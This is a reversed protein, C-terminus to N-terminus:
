GIQISAERDETISQVEPNTELFEMIKKGTQNDQTKFSFGKFLEDYRGIIQAGMDEIESILGQYGRDTTNNQLMVIFQNAIVQESGNAMVTASDNLTKCVVFGGSVQNDTTWVLGITLGVIVVTLFLDQL